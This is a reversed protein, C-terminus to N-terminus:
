DMTYFRSQNATEMEAAHQYVGTAKSSTKYISVVVPSYSALGEFSLWEIEFIQWGKQQPHLRSPLPVLRIRM